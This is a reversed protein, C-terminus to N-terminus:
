ETWATGLAGYVRLAGAPLCLLIIESTNFYSTQTTVSFPYYKLLVCSATVKINVYKVWM